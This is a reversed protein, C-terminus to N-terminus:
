LNNHFDIRTKTADSMGQVRNVWEEDTLGERSLSPLSEQIDTYSFHWRMSEQWGKQYQESQKNIEAM